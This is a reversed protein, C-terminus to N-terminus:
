CWNFRNLYCYGLLLQLLLIVLTEMLPLLMLIEMMELLLGLIM